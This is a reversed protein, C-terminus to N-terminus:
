DVTSRDPLRFFLVAVSGYIALCDQIFEENTGGASVKFCDQAVKCAM